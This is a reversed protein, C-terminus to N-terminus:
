TPAPSSASLRARAADLSKVVEPQRPSGNEKQPLRDPQFLPMDVLWEANIVTVYELYQKSGRQKYEDYILWEHHVDVLSSFQDILAPSNEPVTRYEDQKYYIATRTAFGVAMARLIPTRDLVSCQTLDLKASQMSEALNNFTALAQEIGIMNVAHENCWHLIDVKGQWVVQKYANFVNLLMLHDSLPHKFASKAVDAVRLFGPPRTFIPLTTSRMAAIICIDLTCNFKVAAFITHAWIPDVPLGVATRGRSTLVSQSGEVFGWAELDQVARSIQEPDPPTIWDFALLKKIKFKLLTLCAAHVPGTRISPVASKRMKEEYWKKSYLRYCKGPRTRGARGKRQNASAQSIPKTALLQLQLRPNDASCKELGSDVVYAIGPITISTEAINTAFIVRRKGTNNQSVAADQLAQAMGSYLALVGINEITRAAIGCARIIEAEGPLFVLIDGDDENKNHIHTVMSVAMIVVDPSIDDEHLYFTEVPFCRGEFELVPCNNFYKSLVGTEITASMIIIKLDPRKKEQTMKLLALIIDLVWTREHAEDVIVVGIGPLSLNGMLRLLLVGETLYILRSPHDKGLQNIMRQGGIMYGVEDGIEVDMEDAVRRALAVTALRRPQTCVVLPKEPSPWENKLIAQPVQTSKGSGTPSSCVIVSHGKLAHLLAPINGNVPLALREQLLTWHKPSWPKNNLFNLPREDMKKMEDFSVDRYTLKEM